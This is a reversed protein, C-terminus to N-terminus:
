FCCYSQGVARDVEAYSPSSAQWRCQHRRRRQPVGPHQHYAWAILFSCYSQGVARDVEADTPHSLISSFLSQSWDTDEDANVYM